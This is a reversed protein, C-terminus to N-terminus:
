RGANEVFCKQWRLWMWEWAQVLNDMANEQRDESLLKGDSFLFGM